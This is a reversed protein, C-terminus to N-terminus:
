CSIQGHSSSEYVSEFIRSNIKRNPMAKYVTGGKRTANKNMLNSRKSMKILSDTSNHKFPQQVGFWGVWIRM